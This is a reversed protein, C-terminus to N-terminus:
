RSHPDDHPDAVFEFAGLDAARGVIRPHGEFDTEHGLDMGADVAPSGPRLRFDGAALDRFRPDGIRDGAGLHAGGGLYKRQYAADNAQPAIHDHDTRYFLNHSTEFKGRAFMPEVREPDYVFINNRFVIGTNAGLHDHSWFVVDESDPRDHALVRVVTNHEVRVNTCPGTLGLFQQYDMSINHHIHFDDQVVGGVWEIFGQNRLSLNHHIRIDRKPLRRDNIEIAGGDHGFERSPAAYNELRNYSVENHSGCIVICIPGWKPQIPRDNDHIHNRTVLNHEGYVTIGIPTRTMDCGRVICHDAAESLFVAGLRHVNTAVPNAPCREFSLGEIVVHRANVQIGNGNLVRADPNTFRPPPGDGTAKLTIPAEATGSQDIAIGGKFESGSVFHVTDGPVLIEQALRGLSRWPHSRDGAALDSGSRSDLYFDRAPRAEEAPLLVATALLALTSLTFVPTM